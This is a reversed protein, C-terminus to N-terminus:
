KVFRRRLCILGALGAALGFMGAPEPVVERVLTFDTIYGGPSITYSRSFQPSKSTGSLAPDFFYEVASGRYLIVRFGPNPGIDYNAPANLNWGTLIFSSYAYQPGAYVVLRWVMRIGEPAAARVERTWYPQSSGKDPCYLLVGSSPLSSQKVSETTGTGYYNFSSVASGQPDTCRLHVVWETDLSWAPGVSLVLVSAVVTAVFLIVKKM